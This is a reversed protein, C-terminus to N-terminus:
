TVTVECSADLWPFPPRLAVHWVGALDFALTLGTADVTGAIEGDIEVVTGEPVDPVIWDTSAAVTYTAPMGTAPRPIATDNLVHHTEKSWEGDVWSFGQDDPFLITEEPGYSVWLLEGTAPDYATKYIIQPM